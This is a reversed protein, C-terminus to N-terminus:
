EGGIKSFDSVKMGRKLVQNDGIVIGKGLHLDDELKCGHGVICGKLENKKGIETGELVVSNSIKTGALVEVSDGLCAYPGVESNKALSCNEGLLVPQKIKGKIKPDMRKKSEKTDLLVSHAKLYAEPTGADVWYGKFKFGYLRGEAALPPFIEKEISTKTQPEILDLIEPELVYVGANIWNSFIEEPTPKELFRFIRSSEDTGIIGFRTPDEVEWMAITGVGKKENHFDRIAQIDISSVVDGNFVLFTEELHGEVNQIAGGTGLPKKEEVVVVDRGMDHEKFYQFLRDFMYNVALVVKDVDEPLTKILRVVMPENMIPLLPKPTTYTLPRLRTGLGGALIVTNMQDVTRM